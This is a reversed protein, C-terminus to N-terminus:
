HREYIFKVLLNADILPIGLPWYGVQRRVLAADLAPMIRDALNPHEWCIVKTLDITSHKRLWRRTTMYRGLGWALGGECPIAGVLVGGPRLAGALSEVYSELPHVHELSYFSVIVDFREDGFPFQNAAQRDICTRTFPISHGRLRATARDLMEDRVDLLTYHAPKGKWCEIHDLDGPGIELVSKDHLPVTSMIRYGANCVMAGISQKQTSSYFEPMIAEWAQWDADDLRITRGYRERDGFLPVSFIRPLRHGATFYRYSATMGREAILRELRAGPLPRHM